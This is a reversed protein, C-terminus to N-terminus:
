IRTIPLERALQPSPNECRQRLDAEPNNAVSERTASSAPGSDGLAFTVQADVVKWFFKGPTEAYIPLEPQGTIRANLQSGDRTVTLIANSMIQYKGVYRDLTAIDVSIEQRDVPSASENIQTAAATLLAATACLVAFAFMSAQRTRTTM